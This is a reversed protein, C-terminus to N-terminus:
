VPVPQRVLEAHLRDAIDLLPISIDGAQAQRLRQILHDIVKLQTASAPDAALVPRLLNSYTHLMEAYTDILAQNGARWVHMENVSDALAACADAVFDIPSDRKLILIQDGM